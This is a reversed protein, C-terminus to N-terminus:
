KKKNLNKLPFYYRCCRLSEWAAIHAKQLPLVPLQINSIHKTWAPQFAVQYTFDDVGPDEKSIPPSFVQWSGQSHEKCFAPLAQDRM